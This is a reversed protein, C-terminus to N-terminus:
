GKKILAETKLVYIRSEKEKFGLSKYLNIAEIRKDASFLLIETLGNQKGLEVLKEMLKRGIGQGRHEVDVVVDEVWGKIGSIVTYTCMLAMGLVKNDDICYVLSIPNEPDLVQKLDVQKIDANLQRFLGALQEEMESNIDSEQLLAIKM